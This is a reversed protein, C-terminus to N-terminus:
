ELRLERLAKTISANTVDAGCMCRGAMHPDEAPCADTHNKRAGELHVKARVIKEILQMTTPEAM